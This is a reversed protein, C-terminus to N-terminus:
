KDSMASESSPIVARAASKKGTTPRPPVPFDSGFQKQLIEAADTPDSKSKADELAGLLKELKEKFTEMQKSTMKEFLEPKPEVPLKVKLRPMNKFEGDVEEWNDEFRSIMENVVNILADLDRYTKKGTFVDEDKQITLWHYVCSTLAIGTPRGNGKTFKLDKWRKLYRIVRRFQRRDEKDTLHNKIEEILDKPNSEDWFIDKDDGTPKGKALYVKGNHNNTAYVTLDVHYGAKYTVTVCPKKMKVDDTHDGVADMVWQKAEIPKVDDKSMDFYLGLDIDYGDDIPKIGTSMAYSGQNFFSYSDYDGDPLHEKIRKKIIERKEKLTENEEKLKIEDHFEKFQKQCLVM